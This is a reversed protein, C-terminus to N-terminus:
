IRLYPIWLYHLNVTYSVYTSMELYLYKQLTSVILTALHPVGWNFDFFTICRIYIVLSYHCGLTCHPIFIEIELKLRWFFSFGLKPKWTDSTTFSDVQWHLLCLLYPNSGQTQFIGQLLAHCGVRPNKGPSTWPYVPRFPQLGHSDCLTPCSQPLKACVCQDWSPLM